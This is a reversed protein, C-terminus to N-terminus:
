RDAFECITISNNPFICLEKKLENYMDETLTASSVLCPCPFLSRLRRTKLYQPRFRKGRCGCNKFVLLHNNITKKIIFVVCTTLILVCLYMVIPTISMVHSTCSPVHLLCLIFWSWHYFPHWLCAHCKYM